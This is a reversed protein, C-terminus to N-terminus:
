IKETSKEEIKLHTKICGNNPCGHISTLRQASVFYRNVCQMAHPLARLM